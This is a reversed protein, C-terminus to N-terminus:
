ATPNMFRETSWGTGPEWTRTCLSPAPGPCLGRARSTAPGTYCSGPSYDHAQKGRASEEEKAKTFMAAWLEERSRPPGPMQLAALWPCPGMSLVQGSVLSGGPAM